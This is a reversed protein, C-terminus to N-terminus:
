MSDHRMDQFSKKSGTDMKYREKHRIASDIRASDSITKKQPSPTNCGLIAGMLMLATRFIIVM